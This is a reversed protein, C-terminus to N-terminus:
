RAVRWAAVGAPPLVREGLVFCADAPAPAQATEPGYNIAFQLDGRRRLRMDGSVPATAVGADQAAQDLLGQLLADDFWGAFYRLHRCRVVAPHKDAFRAAVDVGDGLDVFDRWRSAHGILAGREDHVAHLAQPRLSEVRWVRLPLLEALPGPPLQPPIAFDRTKAGTRPGFVVQAECTRIREVFSGDFTALTPVAVMRYGDLRSTSPVIDVDLGLRRLAGYWAFVLAMYDFGSGQPQIDIMWKSAYDFVLAVPAKAVAQLPVGQLERAVQAAEAGGVDLRNDPTHLGSHMQEQAYHVQRWRFYSVLEAGHAFAEWTWARVIGPLPAPNSTAWNVPGAQQEMVWLRGCMGRYLDHHFAAFDPHGSRMYKLRDAEAIFPATECAGLPYSDWAAIDLDRALDHHEFETFFGMFNHLVERGPSHERLLEVQMRNFAVVEHSVFRRFDLAHIPNVQAPLNAPFGIQGFSAYEMSWFVNGWATNLAGIDGYRAALWDRFRALAAPSYSVATDHCGYENDTQWAIVAPHTGYRRAMETVIGRSADVYSKSSFDCHRRSGFAKRRGHVDVPAVDPSQDLLWRPPAATPTGLVIGLGARALTEIATDLWQWDFRSPEPQVRAWAFEAIRVVGIGLEVMSRADAEWQSAPWQEPYYCVGLKMSVSNM